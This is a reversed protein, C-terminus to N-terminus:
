KRRCPLKRRRYAVGGNEGKLCSFYLASGSLPCVPRGEVRNLRQKENSEHQQVVHLGFCGPSKYAKGTSECLTEAQM